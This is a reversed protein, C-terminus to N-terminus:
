SEVVKELGICLAAWTGGLRVLVAEEGSKRHQGHDSADLLGAIITPFTRLSVTTVSCLSPTPHKILKMPQWHPLGPNGTLKRYDTRDSQLRLIQLSFEM